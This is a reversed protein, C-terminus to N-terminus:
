IFYEPHQERYLSLLKTCEVQINIGQKHLDHRHKSYSCGDFRVFICDKCSIDSCDLHGDTDFIMGATIAKVFIEEPTM